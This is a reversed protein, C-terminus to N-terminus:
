IGVLHIDLFFNLMRFYFSPIVKETKTTIDLRKFNSHFERLQRIIKVIKQIKDPDCTPSKLM